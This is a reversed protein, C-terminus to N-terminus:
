LALQELLAHHEGDLRHRGGAAVVHPHAVVAPRDVGLVARQGGVELERDGDRALTRADERGPMQRFVADRGSCCGAPYTILMIIVSELLRTMGNRSRSAFRM